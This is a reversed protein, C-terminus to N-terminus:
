ATDTDLLAAHDGTWRNRYATAAATPRERAVLARWGGTGPPPGVRGLPARPPTDPPTPPAPPRPPAPPQQHPTHPRQPATQPLRADLQTAQRERTQTAERTYACTRCDTGAEHDDPDSSWIRGTECRPDTCGHRTLAAGILWRALSRIRSAPGTAPDTTHMTAYRRQLRDTLREPTAGQHLQHLVEGVLREWEWGTLAALEHRVPALVTHVTRWAAPTLDLGPRRGFTDLVADPASSGTPRRRRIGGGVQAEDRREIGRDEKSALSGDGLDPGSGDGPDPTTPPEDVPRLPDDHVTILHRGRYGARPDLTIWGLLDLRHLLRAVSAEALPQGARPGSHHRLLQALEALTPQHGKVGVFYRLGLYLRHELGRLTDVARVPAWVFAEGRELDRCWREATQGTGTVKHTKRKTFLEQVGDTPAPRGLRRASREASSKSVNLWDAIKEMSATARRGASLAKVKGYFNTDGPAYAEADTVVRLPYKM